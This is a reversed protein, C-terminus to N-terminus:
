LPIMISPNYQSKRRRDERDVTAFSLSASFTLLGEEDCKRKREKMRRGIEAEKKPLVWVFNILEADWIGKKCMVRLCVVMPPDCLFGKGWM